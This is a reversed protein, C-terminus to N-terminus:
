GYIISVQISTTGFSLLVKTTVTSSHSLSERQIQPAALVVSSALSVM